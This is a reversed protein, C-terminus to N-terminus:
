NNHTCCTCVLLNYVAAGGQRKKNTHLQSNIDRDRKEETGSYSGGMEEGEEPKTLIIRGLDAQANNYTSHASLDGDASSVVLQSRTDNNASNICESM